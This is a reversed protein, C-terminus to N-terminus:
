LHFSVTHNAESVTTSLSTHTHPCLHPPQGLQDADVHLSEAGDRHVKNGHHSCWLLTSPRATRM